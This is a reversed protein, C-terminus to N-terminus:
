LEVPSVRNEHGRVGKLEQGVFYLPSGNPWDRTVRSRLRSAIGIWDCCCFFSKETWDNAELITLSIKVRGRNCDSCVYFAEFPWLTVGQRLFTWGRYLWHFRALFMALDPNNAVGLFRIQSM